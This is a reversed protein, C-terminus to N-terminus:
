PTEHFRDLQHGIPPPYTPREQFIEIWPTKEPAGPLAHRMKIYLSFQYLLQSFFETKHWFRAIDISYLKREAFINPHEALFVDREPDFPKGGTSGELVIWHVLKNRFTEIKRIEKLLGDFFRKFDELGPRLQFLKELMILRSRTNLISGFVVFSDLTQAGHLLNDFVIAMHQELQAYANLAESRMIHFQDRAARRANKEALMEDSNDDM